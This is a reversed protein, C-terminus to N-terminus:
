IVVHTFFLIELFSITGVFTDNTHLMVLVM